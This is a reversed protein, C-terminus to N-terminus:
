ACAALSSSRLLTRVCVSSDLDLGSPSSLATGQGALADLRHLGVCVENRLNVGHCTLSTCPVPPHNASFHCYPFSTCAFSTDNHISPLLRRAIATSLVSHAIMDWKITQPKSHAQRAKCLTELASHLFNQNGAIRVGETNVDHGRQLPALPSGPQHSLRCGSGTPSSGLLHKSVCWGRSHPQQQMALLSPSIHRPRWSHCVTSRELLRDHQMTRTSHFSLIQQQFMGTLM